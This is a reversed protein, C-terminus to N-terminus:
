LVAFGRLHHLLIESLPCTHMWKFEIRLCLRSLLPPLHLFTFSDLARRGAKGAIEVREDPGQGRAAELGKVCM